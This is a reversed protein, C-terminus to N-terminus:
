TDRVVLEVPLRVAPEGDLLVRAALRGKAYVDQRITTLGAEAAAPIDDFGVMSAIEIDSWNRVSHMADLVIRDSMGVIAVREGRRLDFQRIRALHSATSEPFRDDIEVWILDHPSFGAARAAALYGAARDAVVSHRFPPNPNRSLFEREAPDMQFGLLIVKQPKKSLAHAMALLAGDRDRIGVCPLGPLSVDVLVFPKNASQLEPVFEPSIDTHVIMMDATTRFAAQLSMRRGLKPIVQLMLQHKDLESAVGRLFEVSQQDSLAYSLDHHFVVGVERLERSRLARGIPDPGYYGLVRSERLIKERLASSLQDPRSFANSVTTTSVGLASAVSKLTARAGSKAHQNPVAAVPEDGPSKEASL